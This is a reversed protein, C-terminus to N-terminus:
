SPLQLFGLRHPNVFLSFLCCVFCLNTLNPRMASPCVERLITRTIISESYSRNLYLEISQSLHWGKAFAVAELSRHAEGLLTQADSLHRKVEESIITLHVCLMQM